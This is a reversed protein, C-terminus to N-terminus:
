SIASYLMTKTDREGDYFLRFEVCYHTFGERTARIHKNLIKENPKILMTSHTHTYTRQKETSCHAIFPPSMNCWLMRSNKQLCKKILPNRNLQEAIFLLLIHFAKPIKTFGKTYKQARSVRPIYNLMGKTRGTNLLMPTVCDHARRLCKVFLNPPGKEKQTDDYSNTTNSRFRERPTNGKPLSSHRFSCCFVLLVYVKPCFTRLRM